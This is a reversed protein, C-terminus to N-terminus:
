RDRQGRASGCRKLCRQRNQTSCAVTTATVVRQLRLGFSCNAHCLDCIHEHCDHYRTRHKRYGRLFNAVHRCEHGQALGPTQCVLLYQLVALMPASAVPPIEVVVQGYRLAEIIRTLPRVSQYRIHIRATKLLVITVYDGTCVGIVRRHPLRMIPKGRGVGTVLILRVCIILKVKMNGSAVDGIHSPVTCVRPRSDLNSYEGAAFEFGVAIAGERSNADSIRPYTNDVTRLSAASARIM